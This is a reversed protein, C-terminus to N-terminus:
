RGETERLSRGCAVYGQVGGRTYPLVVVANRVGTAPQWTRRNEGNQLAVALVGGPLTPYMGNLSATSALLSDNNDYVMMFPSLSKQMDIPQVSSIVQSPLAGNMLKDKADLAYQLPIENASLRIYQQVALYMIGYIIVVAAAIPMWTAFAPIIIKKM